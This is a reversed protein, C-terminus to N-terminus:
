LVVLNGLVVLPSSELLNLLDGVLVDREDVVELLLLIRVQQSLLREEPRGIRTTNRRGPTCGATRRRATHGWVRVAGRGSRHEGGRWIRDRHRALRASTM